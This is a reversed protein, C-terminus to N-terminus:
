RSLVSTVLSELLLRPRVGTTKLARDCQALGDLARTLEETSFRDSQGLVRDVKWHPVGLLRAANAPKSRNQKLEKAVLLQGMTRDILALIPLPSEGEELLRGLQKLASPGDRNAVAETFNFISRARGRGLIPGLDDVTLKEKGAYLSIKDLENL